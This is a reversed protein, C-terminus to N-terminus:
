VKELLEMEGRATIAGQNRELGTLRIVIKAGKEFPPKWKNVDVKDKDVFESVAISQTETEVTHRCVVMEAPKGDKGRFNIKEVNGRRYEAVLLPHGRLLEDNLQSTKM